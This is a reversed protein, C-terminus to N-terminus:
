NHAHLFERAQEVGGCQQLGALKIVKKKIEDLSQCMVFGCLCQGFHDCM